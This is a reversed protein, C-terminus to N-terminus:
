LLADAAQEAVQFVARLDAGEMGMANTDQPPVGLLEAVGLPEGNIIAAILFAESAADESFNADGALQQPGAIQEILDAAPFRRRDARRVGCFNGGAVFLM